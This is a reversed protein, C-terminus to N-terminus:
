WGYSSYVTNVRTLLWVVFTPDVHVLLRPWPIFHMWHLNSMTPVAVSIRDLARKLDWNSVKNLIPSNFILKLM